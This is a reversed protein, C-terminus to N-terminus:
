GGLLAALRREFEDGSWDRVLVRPVQWRDSLPGVLGPINAAAYSYGAERALRRTRRTHDGRGGFPYSFSDVRRGLWEELSRRSGELEERQVHEPHHALSLHTVTHAGVEVAPSSDLRAVEDRMLQRHSRRPNGEPVEGALARLDRLVAEIATATLPKLLPHLEDYARQRAADGDLKWSRGCARLEGDPASALLLRELEDWWFERAGGVYGTAVFVTAPVGAAELAPAAAELNDAYGDDFTVAVGRLPQEDVVRGLPAPAYRSRLLELHDAFNEPVVALLQPDRELRAVRHYCLVVARGGIRDAARQRLAGAVASM